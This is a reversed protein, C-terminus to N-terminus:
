AHDRIGDEAHWFFYVVERKVRKKKKVLGDRKNEDEVM